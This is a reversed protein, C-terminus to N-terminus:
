NILHKPTKQPVIVNLASPITRITIPTTNFPEGDIHVPLAYDAKISIESAQFYKVKPDKLHQRSLVKLAHQAFTFFGDGEFICVDLSGDNLCAKAGIPLFGGYLQINSVVVWPTSFKRLNGSTNMYIDTEHYKHAKNLTPLVYAWSGLARKDTTSISETVAADFGIGAWMLFYRGSVEGVDVAVTKGELLVKAADLLVKRYYNAPLSRSIRKEMDAILNAMKANRLMPNLTPIGMQIAWVNTTGLPIVGMAADSGVLGNAVENITGDGGAAVVVEAGREVAQRSLITAEKPKSTERLSVIWGNHSLYNVIVEIEHRIDIQGSFPNYILEAKM